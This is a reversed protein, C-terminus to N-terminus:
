HVDLQRALHVANLCGLLDAGQSDRENVDATTTVTWRELPSLEGFGIAVNELRVSGRIDPYRDLHTELSVPRLLFPLLQHLSELFHQGTNLCQCPPQRNAAIALFNSVFSAVPRVYFGVDHFMGIRGERM